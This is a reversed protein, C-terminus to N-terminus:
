FRTDGGIDGYAYWNWGGTLMHDPDPWTGYAFDEAGMGLVNKGDHFEAMRYGEGIIERCYNDARASSTLKNGQIPMTLEIFGGAWGYFYEAPMTSGTGTVAYDPHMLGQPNLCLIPLEADCRMDGNYPNCSWGTSEGSPVPDVQCGVLDIKYKDIHAIRGWTMGKKSTSPTIFVPDDDPSGRPLPKVSPTLSPSPLVDALATYTPSPRATPTCTPLATATRKLAAGSTAMLYQPSVFIIAAIVICTGITLASFFIWMGESIPKKSM